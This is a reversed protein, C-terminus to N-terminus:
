KVQVRARRPLSRGPFPGFRRSRAVACAAGIAIAAILYGVVKEWEPYGAPPGSGSVVPWYEHFRIGLPLDPVNPDGQPLLQAPHRLGDITFALTLAALPLAVLRLVPADALLALLCIAALPVVVIQLRAPYAFATSIGTASAVLLLYACAAATGAIAWWRYRFCLYVAGAVALLHLPAFPFWGYDASFLGGVSHRYAWEVDFEPRPPTAFQADPWPSGYWRTFAYALAGLSVVLPAVAVAAASWGAARVRIALAAVLVLSILGFRVHLWPMLAAATAGVVIAAPPPRPEVLVRVAILTLLAAPMEPYVQASYAVFPLSFVVLGWVAYLIWGRGIPLRRMIGLLLYAAIAALLILEVRMARVDHTVLVAPVLLAPLGVNHVSIATGSERQEDTFAHAHGEAVFPGFMPGFRYPDFYDKSLDRDRDYTLSYAEIMYHPQDGTPPPNMAFFAGLYVTAALLFPVLRSPQAVWRLVARREEKGLGFGISAVGAVVALTGAVVAGTQKWAMGPTGGFGLVDAQRGVAVLLAGAVVAVAGFGVLALSRPTM